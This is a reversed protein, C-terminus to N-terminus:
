VEGLVCKQMEAMAKVSAIVIFVISIAFFVHINVAPEMEADQLPFSVVATPVSRLFLMMM